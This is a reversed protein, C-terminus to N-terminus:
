DNTIKQALMNLKKQLLQKEEQSAGEIMETVDESLEKMYMELDKLNSLKDKNMERAEMYMKRSLPSKGERRDRIDMMPFEKETYYARRGDRDMTMTRYKEEEREPNHVYRKGDYQYPNLYRETYYYTEKGRNEKEKKEMEDTLVCYYIAKSLDKIMDIAEGLEETNAERLNGMQSLVLNVLTEKMNKLREM